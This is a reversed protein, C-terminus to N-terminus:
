PWQGTMVEAVLTQVDPWRRYITQRSTGARRAIYAMTTRRMGMTLLCERAAELVAEDLPRAPETLELSGKGVTIVAAAIAPGIAGRRARSAPVRDTIRDGALTGIVPGVATM